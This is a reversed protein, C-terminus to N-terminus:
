ATLAINMQGTGNAAITVPESLASEYDGGVGQVVFNGAPLKTATFRGGEQSIYMFGLRQEADQLKVFAGAVPQGDADTIVGEIVSSHGAENNANEAAQNAPAENEQATNTQEASCGAALLVIASLGIIAQHTQRFM